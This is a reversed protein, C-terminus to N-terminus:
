SKIRHELSILIQRRRQLIPAGFHSCNVNSSGVPRRTKGVVKDEELNEILGDRFLSVWFAPSLCRWKCCSGSGPCPSCQLQMQRAQCWQWTVQWIDSIKSFMCNKISWVCNSFGQHCAVQRKLSTSLAASSFGVNRSTVSFKHLSCCHNTQLEASANLLCVCFM